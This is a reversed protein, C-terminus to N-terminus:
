RFNVKVVNAAKSDVSLVLDVEGRGALSRPLRINVQDLGVLGPTLGAYLVEADTGGIKVSVAPLASRFRFGSGSAILFVQDEAPGFEIPLSVFRNQRSDFRAVAEFIQDGNPKVRLLTAALIGQGSANVTFLGPSIRAIQTAGASIKNDGSTVTVTAAGNATDPPIQYNIQTPAVFFLPALREVGASDKVSIKTGALETPLPTTSAGEVRTALETGFAAVISEPAIQEGQFSAASVSALSSVRLNAQGITFTNALADRYTVRVVYNGVPFKQQVSLTWDTVVLTCVQSSNSTSIRIESGVVALEPLTPVCGTPWAGSLNITVNDNPRPNAPNFSIRTTPVPHVTFNVTNSVGGGPPPNFVTIASAGQRTLDSALIQATLQTSNVYITSREQDNFRVKSTTVFNTGNVTITVGNSGIIASIPSVFALTPIPNTLGIAVTGATYTAQLTNANVDSVERRVPQDGFGIPTAVAPATASVSFTLTLLRRVGSPLSQGIPLALTIGLLGASVQNSNVFLTANAVDDGLAVMPNGLVAPNFTVSFGAATENGQAVIEIPVSVNQGPMAGSVNVVRIERSQAAAEPGSALGSLALVVV